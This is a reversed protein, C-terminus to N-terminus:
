GSIKLKLNDFEYIKQHFDMLTFGLPIFITRSFKVSNDLLSDVIFYQKKRAFNIEQLKMNSLTDPYTITLSYTWIKHVSSFVSASTIKKNMIHCENYMALSIVGNPRKVDIIDPDITHECLCHKGVYEDKVM